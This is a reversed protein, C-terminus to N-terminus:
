NGKKVGRTNFRRSAPGTYEALLSRPIMGGPALAEAVAKYSVTGNAPAKWTIKGWDGYIGAHEGIQAMIAAQNEDYRQEAVALDDKALMLRAIQEAIQVDGTVDRMNELRQAFRKRMYAVPDEADTRPPPVDKLVYEFWFHKGIEYLDAILDDDRQVPVIVLETGLLALIDAATRNAAFLQWLTQATVYDPPGDDWQPMMRRGVIKIEILQGNDAREGDPTAFVWPHDAHHMTACPRITTGMRAAYLQRVAPELAAGIETPGTEEDESALGKKDLWVDLPTCYPNLGAVAAIESAGLGARRETQQEPTFTAM